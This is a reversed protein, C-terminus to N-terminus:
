LESSQWSSDCEPAVAGSGASGSGNNGGAKFRSTPFHATASGDEAEIADPMAWCSTDASSDRSSSRSATSERLTLSISGDAAMDHSWDWSPQGGALPEM